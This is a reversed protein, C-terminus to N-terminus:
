ILKTAIFRLPKVTFANRTVLNLKKLLLFGHLICFICHFCRLMNGQQVNLKSLNIGVHQDCINAHLLLKIKFSVSVFYKLHPSSILTHNFMFYINGEKEFLSTEEYKLSRDEERTNSSIEEM